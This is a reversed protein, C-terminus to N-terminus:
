RAAESAEEKSVRAKEPPPGPPLQPNDVDFIRGDSSRMYLVPIGWEVRSKQQIFKRALMVADDIPQNKSLAEYFGESM